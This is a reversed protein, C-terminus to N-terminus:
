SNSLKSSGNFLSAASMYLFLLSSNLLFTVSYTLKYALSYIVWCCSKIRRIVVGFHRSPPCRLKKGSSDICKIARITYFQKTVIGFNKFLVTYKMLRNHATISELYNM